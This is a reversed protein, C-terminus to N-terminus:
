LLQLSCFQMPCLALTCPDYWSKRKLEASANIATLFDSLIQAKLKMEFMKKSQHEPLSHREALESDESIIPKDFIMM